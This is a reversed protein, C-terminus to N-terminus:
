VHVVLVHRVVEVVVRQGAEPLVAALEGAARGIGGQAVAAQGGIPQIVQGAVDVRARQGLHGPDDRGSSIGFMGFHRRGALAACVGLAHQVDQGAVRLGPAAAHEEDGVVLVVAEEIVHRRGRRGGAM